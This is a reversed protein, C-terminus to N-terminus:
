LDAFVNMDKKQKWLMQKLKCHKQQRTIEELLM